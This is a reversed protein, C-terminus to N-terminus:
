KQLVYLWSLLVFFMFHSINLILHVWISQYNLSQFIVKRSSVRIGVDSSTIGLRQFLLVIAQLLEAEAQIQITAHSHQILEFICAHCSWSDAFSFSSVRVKPVGFIDMNWQYHERRRGRTMREYRWCQGITFWKLPLSVSKRSLLLTPSFWMRVSILLYTRPMLISYCLCVYGQKIVLRALSPTIEPRLVVRRGGKDEFNYLQTASDIAFNYWM